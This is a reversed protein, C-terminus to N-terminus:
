PLSPLTTGPVSPADPVPLDPTDSPLTPVAPQDVTVPGVVPLNAQLLPSDSTEDPPPKPKGDSGSGGKSPGGNRGGGGQAASFAGNATSGHAALRPTSGLERRDLAVSSGVLDVAQAPELADSSRFPLADKGQVAFWVAVAIAAVSILDRRQFRWRPSEQLSESVAVARPARPPPPSMSAVRARSGSVPTGLLEEESPRGVWRFRKSEQTGRRAEM